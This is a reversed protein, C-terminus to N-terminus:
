DERVIHSRRHSQGGQHFLGEQGVHGYYTDENIFRQGVRNVLIGRMLRRPPTLPLAVEAANMHIVNAGAGMAMRIARSPPYDMMFTMPCGATCKGCELCQYLARERIIRDIRHEEM